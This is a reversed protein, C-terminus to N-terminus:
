RNRSGTQEMKGMTQNFLAIFAGRQSLTTQNEIAQASPARILIDYM